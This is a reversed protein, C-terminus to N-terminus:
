GDLAACGLSSSQPAHCQKSAFRIHYTALYGRSAQGSVVLLSLIQNRCVGAECAAQFSLSAGWCCYIGRYAGPGALVPAYPLRFISSRAVMLLELGIFVILLIRAWNQLRILGIGIAVLLAAKGLGFALMLLFMLAQVPYILMAGGGGRFLMPVLAFAEVAHSAGYISFLVALITVGLPREKSPRAIVLEPSQRIQM